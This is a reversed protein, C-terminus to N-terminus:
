DEIGYMLRIMGELKDLEDDDIRDILSYMIKRKPSTEQQPKDEVCLLYDTTVGFYDAIKKLADGRPVYGNNKWNSVNSKNIGLEEAVASPSKGIEDCLEKYRVFFM